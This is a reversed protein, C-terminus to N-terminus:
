PVSWDALNSTYKKVGCYTSNSNNTSVTDTNMPFTLLSITGTTPNSKNIQYYLPSTLTQADITTSCCPCIVVASNIVSTTSISPYCALSAKLTITWTGVNSFSTTQATLTFASTYIDTAPPTITM